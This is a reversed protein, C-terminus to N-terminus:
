ESHFSPSIKTEVALRNQYQCKKSKPTYYLFLSPQYHFSFHENKKENNHNERRAGRRRRNIGNLCHDGCRRRIWQRNRGRGLQNAFPPPLHFGLQKKLLRRRPRLNDLGGGYPIHGDGDTRVASRDNQGGAALQCPQLHSLLFADRYKVAVFCPTKEQM